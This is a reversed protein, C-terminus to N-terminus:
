VIEQTQHIEWKLVGAFSHLALLSLNQQLGIFYRKAAHLWRYVICLQTSYMPTTFLWDYKWIHDMFSRGTLQRVPRKKLLFVGGFFLVSELASSQLGNINVCSLQKM